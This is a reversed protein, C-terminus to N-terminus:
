SNCKQPSHHDVFRLTDAVHDRWYSWEHGGPFETYTHAVQLEKLHTHLARNSPLLRDDIGCDFRIPPLTRRNKQMWYAVSLEEETGCDRFDSSPEEVFSSLDPLNTVSSHASVACFLDAYKAGLRLAGYGGMSLGAIAINPNPILAPATIQAIAPVEEIIWREVDEGGPWSLYGSGDRRLGDSPMAIVMPQIEGADVLRKATTHAGGKLSWVWHSGYVGHLLILLTDIRDEKPVWFSTDGRRDLARSKVSVTRLGDREYAPDSIEITHFPETM